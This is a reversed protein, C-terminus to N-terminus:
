RRVGLPRSAARASARRMSRRAPMALAFCNIAALRHDEPDIARQQAQQQRRTEVVREGVVHGRHEGLERTLSPRAGQDALQGAEQPEGHSRPSGVSGGAGM